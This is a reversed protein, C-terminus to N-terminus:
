KTMTWRPRPRWTNRSHAHVFDVRGAAPERLVGSRELLSRFVDPAEATVKHLHQL